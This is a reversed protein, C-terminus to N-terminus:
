RTTRMTQRTTVAPAQRRRWWDGDVIRRWNPHAEALEAILDTVEPRDQFWERGDALYARFRLHEARELDRTGWQLYLLEIDPPYQSLRRHINISHGIKIRGGTRAYYIIGTQEPSQAPQYVEDDPQELPFGDKIQQDVVSWTYLAHERCFWLREKHFRNPVKLTCMPWSCRTDTLSESNGKNMGTWTSM